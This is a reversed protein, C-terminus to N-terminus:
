AIKGVTRQSQDPEVDGKLRATAILLPLALRVNGITEKAFGSGSATSVLHGLKEVETADYEFAGGVYTHTVERKIKQTTIGVLQKGENALHEVGWIRGLINRGDCGGHKSGSHCATPLLQCSRKLFSGVQSAVMKVLYEIAAAMGEAGVGLGLIHFVQGEVRHVMEDVAM